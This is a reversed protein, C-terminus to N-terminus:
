GVPSGGSYAPLMHLVGGLHALHALPSGGSYLGHLFSVLAALM